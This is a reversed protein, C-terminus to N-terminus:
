PDPEPDPKKKLRLRLTVKTGPAPLHTPDVHWMLAGNDHSHIDPLGLLEDGFSAISIVHGSQDALYEKPAQGKDRLQSGAFLFTHPFRVDAGAGPAPAHEPSRKIFDGIPRETVKGGAETYELFVDILDGRPPIDAWRTMEPDLPRRMAPNGNKAGLLLLATHIHIPRAEVTLISEHEKSDKTCAVLELAGEDLCVTAEVDVRREKAHITLGPLQLAPPEARAEGLPKGSDGDRPPNAPPGPSGEVVPPGPSGTNQPPEARAAFAALATLVVALAPAGPSFPRFHM